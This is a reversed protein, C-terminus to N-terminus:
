ALGLTALTPEDVASTVLLGNDRQFAALAARTQPGILGDIAGRYYGQDRLALQVNELVQGPALNNYGYIPESYAYNNYIPSYGFAPYWYGDSWYYYGGGFLVFTTNFRSRWWNRDHRVRIVRSQAVTFSNRNFNRNGRNRQASAQSNTGRRNVNQNRNIAQNSVQTRQPTRGELSAESKVSQRQVPAVSRPTRSVTRQAPAGRRQAQQVPRHAVQTAPRGAEQSRQEAAGEAQRKHKKKENDNEARVMQALPLSLALTLLLLKKM